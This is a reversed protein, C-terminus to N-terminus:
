QQLPPEYLEQGRIECTQISPMRHPQYSYWVAEALLARALNPDNPAFTLGGSCPFDFVVEGNDSLIQVKM